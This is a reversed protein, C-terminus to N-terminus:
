GWRLHWAQEADARSTERAALGGGLAGSFSGRRTEEEIRDLLASGIGRRRHQPHVIGLSEVITPEERVAQGYGVIVGGADVVVWADTALDFSVRSWEDRLFDADLVSQGADDLDDAILVDAVGDLDDPSSARLDYGAPLDM